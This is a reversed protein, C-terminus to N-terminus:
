RSNPEHVAAKCSITRHDRTGSVTAAMQRGYVTAIGIPPCDASQDKGGRETLYDAGAQGIRRASLTLERHKRTTAATACNVNVGSQTSRTGYAGGNHVLHRKPLVILAM